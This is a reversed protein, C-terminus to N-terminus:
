MARVIFNVDFNVYRECLFECMLGSARLMFNVDSNAKTKVKSM